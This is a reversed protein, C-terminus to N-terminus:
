LYSQSVGKKLHVLFELNGKAGRIPSEVEGLWALGLEQVAFRRLQALVRERVRYDRVVGGKGVDRPGAEFQPKVLAIIDGSPKLIPLLPPLILRLSIFSVDVVALDVEEGIDAPTVYRFNTREMVRVRPDNRLSQDLQGYGVDVAIVSDAGHQLLCDTFGGTSAGVDLCRLGKPAVGFAKLAHELKLGGRSVYPCAPGLVTIEADKSVLRGPKDELRGDVRVRGSLLLAQAKARSPALGKEVLLLDIRLRDAM